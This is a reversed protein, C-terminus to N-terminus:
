RPAPAVVRDETVVVQSGSRRTVLWFPATPGGPAVSYEPAWRLVASL